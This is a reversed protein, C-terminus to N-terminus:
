LTRRKWIDNAEIAAVVARARRRLRQRYCATRCMAPCPLIGCETRAGGKSSRVRRCGDGDTGQINQYESYTRDSRSDTLTGSGRTGTKLDRLRVATVPKAPGAGRRGRHECFSSRPIPAARPRSPRRASVEERRHVLTVERGFRTLLNAEEDGVGSGIVMINKTISCGAGRRARAADMVWSNQEIELGLWRASAGRLTYNGHALRNM